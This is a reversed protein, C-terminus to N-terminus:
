AAQFESDNSDATSATNGMITTNNISGGTNSARNLCGGIAKGAM